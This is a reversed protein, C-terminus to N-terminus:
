VGGAAWCMRTRGQRQRVWCGPNFRVLVLHGGRLAAARATYGAALEAFPPEEGLQLPDALSSTMKEAASEYAQGMVGVCEGPPSLM